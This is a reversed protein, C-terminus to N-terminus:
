YKSPDRGSQREKIYRERTMGPHRERIKEENQTYDIGFNIKDMTNSASIMAMPLRCITILMLFPFFAILGYFIPSVLALIIFNQTVEDLKELIDLIRLVLFLGLISSYLLAVYAQAKPEFFIAFFGLSAMTPLIFTILISFIQQLLSWSDNQFATVIEQTLTESSFNSDDFFTFIFFLLGFIISTNITALLIVLHTKEQIKAELKLRIKFETNYVNPM